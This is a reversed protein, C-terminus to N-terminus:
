HGLPSKSNLEQAGFQLLFCCQMSDSDTVREDKYHYMSIQETTDSEAFEHVRAWWAGREM